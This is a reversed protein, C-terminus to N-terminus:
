QVLLHPVKIRLTSENAMRMQKPPAPRSAIDSYGYRGKDNAIISIGNLARKKTPQRKRLLRVSSTLPGGGVKGGSVRDRLGRARARAGKRSDQHRSARALQGRSRGNGGGCEARGIRPRTQM